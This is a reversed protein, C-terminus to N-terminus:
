TRCVYGHDAIHIPKLHQGIRADYCRVCVEQQRDATTKTAHLETQLQTRLTELKTGWMENLDELIRSLDDKGATASRM